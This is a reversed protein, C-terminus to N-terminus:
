NFSYRLSITLQKSENKFSRFDNNGYGDGFFNKGMDYQLEISYKKFFSYGAGFNLFTSSGMDILVPSNEFVTTIFRTRLVEEGSGSQFSFGFGANLYMSNNANIIFNYRPSLVVDISRSKLNFTSQYNATSKEVEVTKINKYNVSNYSARLFIGWNQKIRLEAEAGFGFSTFAKQNSDSYENGLTILSNNLNLFGTYIVRTKTSQNKYVISNNGTESNYIKFLNILDEDDYKIKYFDSPLLKDTKLANYLEKRFGRDEKVIINDAIEKAYNLVVPNEQNGIKYLYVDGNESKYSYLNANGEVLLQLFVDKSLVNNYSQKNGNKLNSIYFRQFKFEGLISIEKLKSTSIQQKVGDLNIKYNIVEANSEDYNLKEYNKFQLFVETKNNDTDIFYGKRYDNQGFFIYTNLLFIILLFFRKKILILASSTM